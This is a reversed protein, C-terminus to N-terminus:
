PTRSGDEILGEIARVVVRKKKVDVRLIFEKIAPVLSSGSKTRISWLDYAGVSYIEEVIGLIRGDESEATCGLIEHSFYAGKPPQRVDSEEVFLYSGNCRQAADRDDVGQLKMMWRRNKFVVDEVVVPRAAGPTKGLFVRRLKKLRGEVASYPQIKLWGDVGFVGAVSGVAYL